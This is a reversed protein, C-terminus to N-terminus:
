PRYGGLVCLALAAAIIDATTGPNLLNGSQRLMSDFQRLSERGAVTELGGLRLIDGAKSSVHRAEEVGVKRAIFSDPFKSLVHLFTHITAQNLDDNKAIQQTLYPYATDFTIPYGKVWESCVNDYSSAIEFVRFLSVNEKLIKAMSNPDNVDLEPAKGLGSPKAIEIAKYVEVADDATTSKVVFELNRRIESIEICQQETMASMGAAVAVPSLLLVTGLLTNGGRQWGNIDMVCQKMIHGLRIESMGLEGTSVSVGREAALEFSKSAAVASALFHEYRTGEFGVILNVNGPKDASVELLIALELCTSIYRPKEVSVRRRIHV